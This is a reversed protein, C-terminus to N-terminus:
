KGKQMKNVMSKISREFYGNVGIATGQYLVKHTSVDVVTAISLPYVTAEIFLTNPTENIIANSIEEKSVIKFKYPYFDLNKETKKKMIAQPILLTKEAISKDPAYDANDRTLQDQLIWIDKIFEAEYTYYLDKNIESCAMAVLPPLVGGGGNNNIFTTIMLQRNLSQYDLKYRDDKYRIHLFCYKPNDKYQAINAAVEKKDLIKYPSYTWVKKFANALPVDIGENLKEEHDIIVILESNKVKDKNNTIYNMGYQGFCNLVSLLPLAFVITKQIIKM